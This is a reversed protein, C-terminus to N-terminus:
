KRLLPVWSALLAFLFGVGSAIGIMVKWGGEFRSVTKQLSDVASDLKLIAVHLAQRDLISYRMQEELRASITNADGLRQELLNVKAWLQEWERESVEM